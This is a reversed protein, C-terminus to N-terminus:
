HGSRIRGALSAIFVALEQPLAPKALHVDYGALMARVRDEPRAYATLAIGPTLGGRSSPLARVRQMLVYGSEGPMEIDSVVIDPREAVVLRFGEDADAAPLVTAGLQELVTAVLVRTDEHDEVLLVKLGDLRPVTRAPEGARGALDASPGRALIPLTVRLTAGRGEGESRAEIQGGHLEVLHKVIALGLGLGGHRRSSSSDAQRFTEFVHPLFDAAIGKGTDAVTLEVDTGVPGVSVEVRGDRPTFKVANSLLNWAVQQLRDPDAWIWLSGTPPTWRLDIVKASAAPRLTDVAATVAQALEVRQPNLRM